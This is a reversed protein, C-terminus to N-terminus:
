EDTYDMYNHIPDVGGGPCTDRGIPCGYAETAEAPTDGIYDGPDSCGNQFTHLLGLWHGIEHIATIGLDYPAADGGPVSGSLLTVGDWVLLNPDRNLDDPLYAYGLLGDLEPLLYINLDQYTGQHLHWKMTYEDGDHAWESNVTWDVGAQNFTLGYVGFRENMVDLQRAM